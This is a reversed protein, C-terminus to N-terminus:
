KRRGRRLVAIMATLAVTTGAIQAATAAWFPDGPLLAVGLLIVLSALWVLAVATTRGQALLRAQTFQALTGAAIAAAIVAIMARPPVDGATFLWVVVPPVLWTALIMWASAIGAGAAVLGLRVSTRTPGGEELADARILRPLLLAQVAPFIMVPARLLVVSAAFGAAADPLGPARGTAVVPALNWVGQSCLFLLSSWLLAALTSDASGERLRHRLVVEAANWARGFLAVVVVGAFPSLALLAAWHEVSHVRLALLILAGGLAVAAEAGFSAAFIGYRGDGALPGRLFSSAALGIAALGLLAVLRLDALARTLLPATVALLVLVAGVLLVGRMLGARCVGVIGEGHARARAVGRTLELELAAFTGRGVTNVLLYFSSLAAFAAGPLVRAGMVLALYGSAALGVLSAPVSLATLRARTTTAGIV